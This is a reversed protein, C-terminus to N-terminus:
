AHAQDRGHVESPPAAEVGLFDELIRYRHLARLSLSKCSALDIQGLAGHPSFSSEVKSRSSDGM